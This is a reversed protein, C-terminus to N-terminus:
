ERWEQEEYQEQALHVKAACPCKRVHVITVAGASELQPLLSQASGM